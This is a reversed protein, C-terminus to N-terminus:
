GLWTIQKNQGNGNQMLMDLLPNGNMTSNTNGDTTDTENTPANPMGM